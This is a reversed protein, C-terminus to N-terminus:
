RDSEPFRDAVYDEVAAKIKTFVREYSPLDAGYPDEIEGGVDGFEGLLVVAQPRDPLHQQLMRQQERTMVLIEDASELMDATVQRARHDEISFGNDVAVVEANSSAPYGPLAGVGASEVEVYRIGRQELLHRLYGEAMPSRCINGHCIVLIRDM